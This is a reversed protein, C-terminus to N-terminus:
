KRHGVVAVLGREGASRRGLWAAARPRAVADAQPAPEPERQGLRLPFEAEVNGIGRERLHPRVEVVRIEVAAAAYSCRKRWSTM